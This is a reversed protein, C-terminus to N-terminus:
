FPKPRRPVRMDGYPTPPTRAPEPREMRQAMPQSAPSQLPLPSMAQKSPMSHAAQLRVELRRYKEAWAKAAIQAEQLKKEAHKRRERELKLAAFDASSLRKGRVSERLLGSQGAVNRFFEQQLDAMASKYAADRRHRTAGIARMSEAALMGQHVASFDEDPRPVVWFHLHPQPEDLHVIVSKLRDEGYKRKLWGVASAVFEQWRQPSFFKPPASIVGALACPQDKRYKRLKKKGTRPETYPTCKLKAWHESLRACATPSQGHLLTPPLPNSVHPCFGQIREAENAIKWIDNGGAKGYPACRAYKEVHFFQAHPATPAAGATAPRSTTPHHM